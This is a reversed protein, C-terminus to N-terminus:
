SYNQSNKKGCSGVQPGRKEVPRCGFFHIEPIFGVYVMPFAKKASFTQKFAGGSSLGLVCISCGVIEPLSHLTVSNGWLYRGRTDKSRMHSLCDEKGLDNTTCGLQGAVEAMMFEGVSGWNQSIFDVVRQRLELANRTHGWVALSVAEFQCSDGDGGQDVVELYPYAAKWDRLTLNQENSQITEFLKEPVDAVLKGIDIHRDTCEQDDLYLM